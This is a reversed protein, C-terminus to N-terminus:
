VVSKRDTQENLKQRSTRLYYIGYSADSLKNEKISWSVCTVTENEDKEVNIDYHKQISPYKERARGIRECVKDYKKTGHKKHISLEVKSTNNM